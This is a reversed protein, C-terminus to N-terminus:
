FDQLMKVETIDRAVGCIGRVRERGDWLPVKVVHYVRDSGEFLKSEECEVIEGRLVRHDMTECEDGREQGMIDQVTKGLIERAPLGILAEMAPNISVYQLQRNKIFIPDPTSEFIARIRTEREKLAEEAERRATIDMHMGTARVPRGEGDREVIKGWNLIWKYEGSKTRMRHEVEFVPTEGAEHARVIREARSRDGPHILDLWSELQGAIEEPTFGLMEAWRKSRIVKGSGFDQEWFGLNAVELALELRAESKKLDAEARRLETIDSITGDLYLLDGTEDTVAHTSLLARFRSGDKRKMLTEVNTYSGNRLCRNRLKARQERHFYLEEASVALFEGTTDYGFMEVMAPNASLIKGNPQTRFVGCPVNEIIARTLAEQRVLAMEREVRETIDTWSGSLGTVTGDRNYRPGMHDLVWVYHGKGHRIRYECHFVEGKNVAEYAQPIVYRDEPHILNEWFHPDSYVDGPRHGFRSQLNGSIFVVQFDPGPGCTYIVVPNTSLHDCLEEAQRKYEIQARRLNEIENELTEIRSGDYRNQPPSSNNESMM